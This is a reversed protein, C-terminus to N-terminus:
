VAASQHLLRTHNFAGLMCLRDNLGYTVVWQREHRLAAGAPFVVRRAIPRLQNPHSAALDRDAVLVPQPAVHVPAFPPAAAFGYFGGVYQLHIFRERYWQRLWGLRAGNEARPRVEQAAVADGHRRGKSRLQRLWPYVVGAFRSSHFFSYYTDGVRVPPTGGRMEGFRRTYASSNWQTTYLPECRVEHADALRLRLIVHPSITYVALLQDDHSFPMWNREHQQRPELSLWRSTARAELTDRDVEVLYLHSVPHFSCYLLYTRGNHVVLRPDGIGQNIGKITDSLPVVSQPVIEFTDTLRCAAIRNVTYGPAVVRYAMLWGGQHPLLTPNFLSLPQDPQEHQWAAPTLQRSDFAITFEQGTRNNM